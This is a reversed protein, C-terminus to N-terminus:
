NYHFESNWVKLVPMDSLSLQKPETFCTILLEQRVDLEFGSVPFCRCRVSIDRFITFEWDKNRYCNEVGNSTNRCVAKLV